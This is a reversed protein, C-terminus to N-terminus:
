KSTELPFSYVDPLNDEFVTFPDDYFKKFDLAMKHEPYPVWFHDQNSNQWFLAYAIKRAIQDRKIPKLFFITFWDTLDVKSLGQEPGTETLAPIKNKEEALEVIFRLQKLLDESKKSYYHDIGFIDVYDSGPFRNTLYSKKDRIGIKDPSYAYLLNHVNKKDRLYHVTFQWLKIFEQSSCSRTGWWFWFGTNEHWPRFIIPIPHGKKDKLKDLFVAFRDLISTFELHKHGGPLIHKVAETTDDYRKGTVPNQMHWSITNIGGRAYADRILKPLLSNDMINMDWGYVAPFSGTVIKVDSRSEKNIWGIGRFTTNQHGILLKARALKKLNVFLAKTELTAKSDVLNEGKQIFLTNDGIALLNSPLVSLIIILILFKTIVLLKKIGLM